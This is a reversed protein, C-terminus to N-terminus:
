KKLIIVNSRGKKIKEIKGKAELETLVLSIKAESYPFNKRLDKQTIRGEQKKIANIVKESLDGPEIDEIKESPKKKKIKYLYFAVSGIIIFSIVAIIWLYNNGNPLDVDPEIDLDTDNFLEEEEVIDVFSILDLTYSGENNVNMNENVLLEGNITKATITYEGIPVDFSYVGDNSIQRQMPQTNIEIITNKIKNLSFDYVIGHINAGYAEAAFVLTLIILIIIKRM